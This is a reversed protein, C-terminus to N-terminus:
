EQVGKINNVEWNPGMGRKTELCKGAKYVEKINNLRGKEIENSEQSIRCIFYFIFENLKM